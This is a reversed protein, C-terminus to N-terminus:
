GLVKKKLFFFGEQHAWRLVRAKSAKGEKFSGEKVGNKFALLGGLRGLAWHRGKGLWGKGARGKYGRKGHLYNQTLPIFVLSKGGILIKAWGGITEL